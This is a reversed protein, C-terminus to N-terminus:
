NPVIHTGKKSYHIKFNNTKNESGDLMSVNVGIKKDTKIIEKKRWNGKSDM